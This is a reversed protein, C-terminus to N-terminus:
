KKIERARDRGRAGEYAIQSQASETEKEVVPQVKARSANRLIMSNAHEWKKGRHRARNWYKLWNGSVRAQSCKQRFVFLFTM